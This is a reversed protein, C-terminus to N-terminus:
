MQRWDIPQRTQRLQKRGDAPLLMPGTVPYAQEVPSIQREPVRAM